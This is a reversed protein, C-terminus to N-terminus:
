QSGANKVYKDFFTISRTLATTANAAIDHDDKPYLYLEVYLGNARLTDTFDVSIRYPVVPDTMSHQLQLPGSLNKLQDSHIFPRLTGAWVVGAKVDHSRLMAAVTVYGGMSHGWMGIRNPDVYPHQKLVQIANLVDVVYNSRSRSSAGESNGNGRYDSKFVIYGHQALANVQAIYSGTTVYQTPRIYGHNFVIVPWGSAPRDGTPVTMLAYLKLGDSLYTVIYRDYNTGPNLKEEITIDGGPFQQVEQTPAATPASNTTAAPTGSASLTATQAGITSFLALALLLLVFCGEKLRTQRSLIM